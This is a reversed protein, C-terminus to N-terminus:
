FLAAIERYARVREEGEQHPLEGRNVARRTAWMQWTMGLRVLRRALRHRLPGYHKDYLRRRSRWLHRLSAVRVQGASQGVHHVVRAQPVCYAPWGARRMRWCWDIEECYLFFGEDLLGVQVIAERRVLMAAGLPHDIPFPRGAEYLRRPYRGNLRSAYLRGPAPLLDLAIQWLGPFRFASHQFSGDGYSLRAGAVGVAPHADMFDVLASVAGPEVETDPNLLLVYRPLSSEPTPPDQDFGMARLAQNNAAAFGRNGENAILHVQPFAHRVMAPSGDTSGNDVVWIAGRRGWRAMEAQLAQLCARLRERVNWSVIVVALDLVDV